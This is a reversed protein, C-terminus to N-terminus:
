WFDNAAQPIRMSTTQCAPHGTAVIFRDRVEILFYIHVVSWFLWGLFGSLELRGLKVVAAHRGITALDGM